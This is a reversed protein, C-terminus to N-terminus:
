TALRESPAALTASEESHKPLILMSEVILFLAMFALLVRWIESQLKPAGSQKEEFLQVQVKGFLERAKAPELSVWDDEHAPRNQAVVRDDVRYIGSESGFETGTGNGVPVWRQGRETMTAEGCVLQRAATLRSAGTLVLRQIMPVLVFGETLSSWEELPLTGCMLAQGRGMLQRVIMPTNDSYRALVTAETRIVQRKIIELDDMPLPSGEATNALPGELTEWRSVKFSENAAASQVEGWGLGEFQGTEGSPFFVLVGGQNVYSQLKAAVDGEPPKSQWLVAAYKSWVADGLKDSLVVEAVVNTSSSDPSAAIQLIRRAVPDSGVVAVSSVEQQGYVFYARNDRANSDDPLQVRGWGGSDAAPLTVRRRYRLTQGEFKVTVREGTPVDNFFFDIPFAEQVTTEIRELKLVLELEAVNGRQQRNIEEITISVNSKTPANMALLRVRINQPLNLIGERMAGWRAQAEPHWNSQQLDSALWIETNGPKSEVIWDIASQLLAPIDAATDTASTTPVTNMDNLDAIEKPHKSTHDLLLVRSSESYARATASLTKLATERKTILTGANQDEMSASRDLLILIVDPRSSVMWGAWGGVLPRAIALLLAAVALCRFLLILYQRLKAYRTSKRTAMRLFMMAGWNMPRYRLRNFLHILIPLLILPLGWLLLPSLFTM